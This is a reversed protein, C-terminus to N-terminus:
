RQLLWRGQRAALVVERWVRQMAPAKSSRVHAPWEDPHVRRLVLLTYLACEAEVVPLAPNRLWELAIEAGEPHGLLALAALGAFRQEAAEARALQRFIVPCRLSRGLMGAGLRLFALTRAGSQEALYIMAEARNGCTVAARVPDPDRQDTFAPNAFRRLAPLRAFFDSASGKGHQTAPVFDRLQTPSLLPRAAALVETPTVGFPALAVAAAEEVDARTDWRGVLAEYAAARTDVWEDRTPLAQEQIAPVAGAARGSKEIRRMLAMVRASSGVQARIAEILVPGGSAWDGTRSAKLAIVM